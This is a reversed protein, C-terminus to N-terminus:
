KCNEEFFINNYLKSNIHNLNGRGEGVKKVGGGEM